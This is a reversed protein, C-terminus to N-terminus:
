RASRDTHWRLSLPRVPSRDTSARLFPDAPGNRAADGASFLSDGHRDGLLVRRERRQGLLDQLQLGLGELDGVVRVGALDHEAGRGAAGAGAGAGAGGAGGAAGGSPAETTRREAARQTRAASRDDQRGTATGAGAGARPQTGTVPLPAAGPAGRVRAPRRPADGCAAARHAAAADDARAAAGVRLRDAAARARDHVGDAPGDRAARARDPRGRDRRLRGAGAGPHVM